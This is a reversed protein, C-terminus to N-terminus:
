TPIKFTVGVCSIISFKLQLTTSDKMSNITQTYPLISLGRRVSRIPGRLSRFVNLNKNGTVSPLQNPFNPGMLCYQLTFINNQIHVLVTYESNRAGWVERDYQINVITHLTIPHYTHSETLFFPFYLCKM